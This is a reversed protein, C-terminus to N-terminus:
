GVLSLFIESCALFNEFFKLGGLGVRVPYARMPLPEGYPVVSRLFKDDVFLRPGQVVFSREREVTHVSMVPKTSKDGRREGSGGEEPTHQNEEFSSAKTFRRFFKDTETLSVPSHLAYKIEGTSRRWGQGM